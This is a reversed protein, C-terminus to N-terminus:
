NKAPFPRITDAALASGKAKPLQRFRLRRVSPSFGVSAPRAPAGHRRAFIFLLLTMIRSFPLVTFRGCSRRGTSSYASMASSKSAKKSSTSATASSASFASSFFPSSTSAVAAAAASPSSVRGAFFALVSSFPPPPPPPLTTTTALAAAEAEETAVLPPPPTVTADAAGFPGDGLGAGAATAAGACVVDDRYAAPGTPGEIPGDIPGDIPGGIPGGAVFGM